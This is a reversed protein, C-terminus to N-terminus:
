EYNAKLEPQCVDSIIHDVLDHLMAAAIPDYALTDAIRFTTMVVRGRGYRFQVTHLAPHRVWGSIQGALYDQQYAKDEYPLGLIVHQPMVDRFPLTLPSDVNLRRYVGPRLWSFSTVWNGGYTGGRGHKWFFPSGNGSSALYLMDGGARVWALMDITPNDTILLRADSLHDHTDYGLGQILGYLSDPNPNAPQTGSSHHRAPRTMVAIPQRYVGQRWASPLVLVSVSGSVDGGTDKVQLWLSVTQALEVTPMRWNAVGIQRVEGRGITEIPQTFIPYEGETDDLSLVKLSAGQWNDRSYHSVFLSVPVVANDWHAYSPLQALAMDPANIQALLDHFVKPRRAFDLLGNSEWYIDTLETIVYGQINPQRRMAEIEFKLAHFEHWQTAATFAEYSGWIDNLGYQEFRELVGTPFGPEGDWPSWWSGLDFWDPEVGKYPILSPMGWNGFESLILPENGTRQADGTNSFSWLPRNGFHEIFQEFFDAADPINAYVHFDDIDSKVHINMGWPAGCASNDVVLRTPDLQKCVDVMEAVWARDAESLLLATGWDENVITWAILSAHNYDRAIMEELTRRVRSKITEDVYVASPHVTAKVHFTRWSPIEAWILLGIEDALDLYRPDPPKIHCRLSNLGMHKAKEFQDRLFDDSPMTYITDPYIDQDLACLLYIPQGNLLLQGNRTTIERFGIRTEYEDHDAGVELGVRVPYLQPSEPTWLQPTAVQVVLKVTSQDPAADTEVTQGDIEATLTVPTSSMSLAGGLRVEISAEGTHINPTIAVNEIYRAPVAKLIVDQWIGGVNVYWEQKGHPIHEAAFPPGDTRPPQDRWRPIVISDQAPDYVRV